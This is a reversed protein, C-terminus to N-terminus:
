KKPSPKTPQKTPKDDDDEDDPDETKTQQVVPTSKEELAELADTESGHGLPIYNVPDAM